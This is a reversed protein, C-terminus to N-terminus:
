TIELHDADQKSLIYIKSNTDDDVKLNLEQILEFIMPRFINRVSFFDILKSYDLRRLAKKLDDNITDDLSDFFM